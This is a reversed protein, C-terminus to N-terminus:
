INAEVIKYQKKILYKKSLRGNLYKIAKETRFCWQNFDEKFLRTEQRLYEFSIDGKNFQEAIDIYKYIGGNQNASCLVPGSIVDYKEFDDVFDMALEPLGIRCIYFLYYLDNCDIKLHKINLNSEEFSIDIEYVAGNESGKCSWEKAKKFNSTFYIGNGFDNTGSSNHKSDFSKINVNKSGHYLKM